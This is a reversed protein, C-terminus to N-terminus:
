TSSPCGCRVFLQFCGFFPINCAAGFPKPRPISTSTSTSSRPATRWSRCASTLIGSSSSKGGRLVTFTVVGDKDSVMSFSIDNSTFVRSGNVRLIRDGAQLRANSQAGEHFGGVVTTPLSQRMGVLISLIVFGLLLNMLAGACVFLIRKWLRVNCYARPDSSDEDEGEVAVYGGIPLARLAYKTEGRQTSWIAPGMGLAFENVRMGSLKGVTFHGLEHIFILLGFVFVAVVVQFVISM